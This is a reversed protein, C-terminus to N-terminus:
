VLACSLGPQPSRKGIIRGASEGAHNARARGDDVSTGLVEPVDLM